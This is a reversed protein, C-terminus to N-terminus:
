KSRGEWDALRRYQYTWWDSHMGFHLTGKRLVPQLWAYVKCKEDEDIVVPYWAWWEHWHIRIDTKSPKRKRFFLM